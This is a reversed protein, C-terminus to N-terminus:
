HCFCRSRNGLYNYLSRLPTKETHGVLSAREVIDGAFTVNSMKDEMGAQREKRFVASREM